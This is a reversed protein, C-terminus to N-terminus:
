TSSAAPQWAALDRFFDSLTRKSYTEAIEGKPLSQQRVFECWRRDLLVFDLYAVPVITHAVDLWEQSTMSMNQNLLVFDIAAALLRRTHPPRSGETSRAAGRQSARHMATADKRANEITGTLAAGYAARQARLRDAGAPTWLEDLTDAITGPSLGDGSLGVARVFEADFAPSGDVQAKERAIVERPDADLFGFDASSAIVQVAERQEARGISSLEALTVFSYLLSPQKSAALELWRSRLTVDRALDVWMWQDFYITPQRVEQRLLPAEGERIFKIM